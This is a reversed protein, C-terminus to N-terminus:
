RPLPATHSVTGAPNITITLKFRNSHLEIPIDTSLYQEPNTSTIPRGTLKDFFLDFQSTPAVITIMTPLNTTQTITAMDTPDLKTILSVQNTNPQLRIGHIQQKQATVSLNQSYIVASQIQDATKELNRKQVFSSVPLSIIALGIGVIVLSILLELLSFGKRTSRPSNPTTSM